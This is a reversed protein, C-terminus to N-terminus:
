CLTVLSAQTTISAGGQYNILGGMVTLLSTSQISLDGKSKMTHM